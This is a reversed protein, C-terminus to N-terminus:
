LKHVSFNVPIDVSSEAPNFCRRRVYEIAAQDLEPHSGRRMIRIDAPFGDKDVTAHVVVQGENRHGNPDLPYRLPQRAQYSVDAYPDMHLTWGQAGLVLTTTAEPRRSRTRACRTDTSASDAVVYRLHEPDILTFSEFHAQKSPLSHPTAAGVFKGDLFLYLQVSTDACNGIPHTTAEAVYTNGMRQSRGTFTPQGGTVLSRDEDNVLLLSEDPCSGEAVTQSTASPLQRPVPNIAQGLIPTPHGPQPWLALLFLLTAAVHSRITVDVGTFRDTPVLRPTKM